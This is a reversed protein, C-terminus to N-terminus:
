GRVNEEELIRRLAALARHQLSKVAGVTKGMVLAVENNSLEELFRLAIVQQQSSPLRSMAVRMQSAKEQELLTRESTDPESLPTNELPVVEQDPQRRYFDVILNHTVRYLWASLNKDPGNGNKLAQLYRYFSEAVIDQVVDQQGLLRYAYRYLAPAYKDYVETLAHENWQHSGNSHIKPNITCRM